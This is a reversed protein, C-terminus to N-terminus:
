IGDYNKDRDDRVLDQKRRIKRWHPTGDPGTVKVVKRDASATSVNISEKINDHIDKKHINDHHAISDIANKSSSKTINHLANHLTVPSVAPGGVWLNHGYKKSTIKHIVHMDTHKYQKGILVEHKAHDSEKHYKGNEDKTYGSAILHDHIDAKRKNDSRDKLKEKARETGIARKEIREYEGNKSFVKRKLASNGSKYLKNYTDNDDKAKKVYSKLTKSSIEDIQEEKIPGEARFKPKKNEHTEAEEQGPTAQRYKRVVADAGIENEPGLVEIINGHKDMKRKVDAPKKFTPKLKPKHFRGGKVPWLHTAGKVLEKTNHVTNGIVGESLHPAKHKIHKGTYSHYMDSHHAFDDHHRMYKDNIKDKMHGVEDLAGHVQHKELGLNKYNHTIEHELDDHDKYEAHLRKMAAHHKLAESKHYKAYEADTKKISAHIKEKEKEKRLTNPLDALRKQAARFGPVNARSASENIISDEDLKKNVSKKIASRPLRVEYHANRDVYHQTNHHHIRLFAGTEPHHFLHDHKDDPKFGHKIALKKVHDIKENDLRKHTDKLEEGKIMSVNGAHRVTSGAWHFKSNQSQHHEFGTPNRHYKKDHDSIHSDDKMYKNAADLFAQHPHNKIPRVPKPNGGWSEDLKDEAKFEPKKNEHTEANEQGPTGKRYKRVVADTGIENEPGLEEKIAHHKTLTDDLAEPTWHHKTPHRKAFMAAKQNPKALEVQANSKSGGIVVKSGDSHYHTSGSHSTATRKYGHKRLIKTFTEDIQEEKVEHSIGAHKHASVPNNFFKTKGHKNMAKWTDQGSLGKIKKVSPTNKSEEHLDVDENFYSKGKNIFSNVRAFAYQERSVSQDETWAELGRDFVEGLIEIDVGSKNAKKALSKYISSEALAEESFKNYMKIQTKKNSKFDKVKKGFKNNIEENMDKREKAGLNKLQKGKTFSSLRKSEAQQIRPLLRAAIKRILQVKGEVAKDVLMKEAPGLSDYEEGRKGAFKRRVIKRAQAYARKKLNKQSAMKGRAVRRAIELKKKNARTIQARKQRQVIDLVENLADDVIDTTSM